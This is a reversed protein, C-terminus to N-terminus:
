EGATPPSTSAPTNNHGAGEGTLYEHTHNAFDAGLIEPIYFSQTSNGIRTCEDIDDSSFSIFSFDAISRIAAVLDLNTTSCFLSEEAANTAQCFGFAFTGGAGDDFYRVGCGILEVDNDSFRASVMNGAAFKNDLDVEVPFDTAVGGFVLPSFLLIVMAILIKRIKM